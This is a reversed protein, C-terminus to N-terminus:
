PGGTIATILGGPLLHHTIYVAYLLLLGSGEARDVRRGTMMFAILIVTIAPLAWLDYTIIDPDFSLPTVM